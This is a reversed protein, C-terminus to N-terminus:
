SNSSADARSVSGAAGASAASGQISIYVEPVVPLGLPATRLWWPLASRDSTVSISSPMRRLSLASSTIGSSYSDPNKQWPRITQLTLLTSRINNLLLERDGQVYEGLTKADVAAVRAQWQGLAKINADVGARSYDELKGDWAHLGDATATSPNAPFYYDDFYRDALRMFAQDAPSATGAAPATQAALVSGGLPLVLALACAIRTLPKM